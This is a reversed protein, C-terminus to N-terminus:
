VRLEHRQEAVRFKLKRNPSMSPFPSIRLKYNAPSVEFTFYRALMLMNIAFQLEM